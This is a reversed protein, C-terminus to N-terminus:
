SYLCHLFSDIAQTKISYFTKEDFFEKWWGKEKPEMFEYYLIRRENVSLTLLIKEVYPILTHKNMKHTTYIFDYLESRYCLGIKMCQIEKDTMTLKDM